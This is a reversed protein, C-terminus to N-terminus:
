QLPEIVFGISTIHFLSDSRMVHTNNSNRAFLDHHHGKNIMQNKMSKIKCYIHISIEIENM